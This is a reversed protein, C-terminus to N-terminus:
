KRVIKIRMKLDVVPRNNLDTKQGAISDLVSFGNIMEGFITYEGDLQPTGGITTYTKIQEDSWTFLPKTAFEEDVKAMIRRQLAEKESNSTSFSVLDLSDKYKAVMRNFIEERLVDSRKLAIERLEDQTRTKGQVIYFQSGSSAKEPNQQNGIRAAALMGRKHIFKPFLIEQQITYEPGGNGLEDGPKATKSDPDGGQIMFGEIVRHFLLGDYYKQKALKIFNDRHKPTEDFLKFKMIGFKTSIEAFYPANEPQCAVLSSLVVLLILRNLKM